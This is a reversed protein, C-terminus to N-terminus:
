GNGPELRSLGGTGEARAAEPLHARFWVAFYAALNGVLGASVMALTMRVLSERGVWYMAVVQWLLVGALVYVYRKRELSLAYNLWIHLGAYLTAALSALGLVIGPDAYANTFVVRVLLGPVAFYVGTLALGPAVAAALALLLIPRPDRGSAKRRAVKPFIVLGIAWPLFLSIKALTVVPGYDGAMRPSFYRRVFLADLNTLLGFVALGVLTSASYHWSVKRDAVEGRARFYPRLWWVAAVVCGVSALPQALIAGVARWGARILGACLIVRLLGQVVQVTGLGAFAQLGQLGGFAVERLFLLLVMLSAAWLPWADPLRLERALLPSALAMLGTAVLGWQWAWRWSRRVFSGVRDRSGARATLEATYFAVVMRIAISLLTLVQVVATVSIFVGFDVPELWRGALVNVLYDLGGALIMAAGLIAGDRAGASRLLWLLRARPTGRLGVETMFAEGETAERAIRRRKM